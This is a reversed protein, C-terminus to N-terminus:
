SHQMCCCELLLLFVKSGYLTSTQIWCEIELLDRIRNTCAILSLGLRRNMYALRYLDKVALTRNRMCLSIYALKQPLIWKRILSRVRSICIIIDVGLRRGEDISLPEDRMCLDVFAPRLWDTVHLGYAVVLRDVPSIILPLRSTDLDIHSTLNWRSTLRM